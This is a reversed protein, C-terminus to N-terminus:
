SESAFRTVRASVTLVSLPQLARFAWSAICLSKITAERFGRSALKTRVRICAETMTFETQRLNLFLSAHRRKSLMVFLRSPQLSTSSLTKLSATTSSLQVTVPVRRPTSCTRRAQLRTSNCLCAGTKLVSLCFMHSELSPTNVSARQLHCALDFFLVHAKTDILLFYFLVCKGIFLGDLIRTMDPVQAEVIDAKGAMANVTTYSPPPMSISTSTPSLSLSSAIM